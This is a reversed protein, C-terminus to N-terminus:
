GRRRLIAPVAALMIAAAALAALKGCLWGASQEQATTSYAFVNWQGLLKEGATSFLLGWLVLGCGIGGWTSRLLNAATMALTGWFVVTVASAALFAGFVLLRSTDTWLRAPRQWYFCGYCLMGAAWLWGAQLFLRRFIVRMKKKEGYLAFVEHRKGQRESVYTDACFVVALMALASDAAGGIEEVYAVGRVLSLGVAFLLSYALKYIPLCIKMEQKM